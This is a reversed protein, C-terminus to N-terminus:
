DRSEILIVQGKYITITAYDAIIENSITYIDSLSVERHDLPYAVGEISIIADAFTIFSLYKFDSKDITHIGVALKRIRNKDDLMVLDADSRYILMINALFHDCRGNTGGLLVLQEYGKELAYDIASESDSQDKMRPLLIFDDAYEKIEELEKINVSDFDGIACVMRLGKRALLLAGRDIGIYPGDEVIDESLKAVLVVRNGM